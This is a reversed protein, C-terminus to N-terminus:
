RKGRKDKRGEKKVVKGIKQGKRREKNSGKRNARKWCQRARKKGVGGGKKEKSSLKVEREGQIQM